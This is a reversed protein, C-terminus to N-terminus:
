VMKLDFHEYKKYYWVEDGTAVPVDHMFLWPSLATRLYFDSNSRTIKTQLIQPSCINMLVPFCIFHNALLLPLAEM